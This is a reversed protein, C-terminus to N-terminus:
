AVYKGRIKESIKKSIKKIGETRIYTMTMYAKERIYFDMYQIYM